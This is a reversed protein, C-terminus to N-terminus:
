QTKRLYRDIEERTYFLRDALYWERGSMGVRLYNILRGWWIFVTAGLSFFIFLPFFLNSAGSESDLMSRATMIGSSVGANISVAVISVAFGNEYGLRPFVYRFWTGSGWVLGGLMFFVPFMSRYGASHAQWVDSAIPSGFGSLVAVFGLLITFAAIGYVGCMVYHVMTYWVLRM